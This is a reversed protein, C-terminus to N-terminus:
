RRRILSVGDGVGVMVVELTPDQCVRRNFDRIAVTDADDRAPDIVAGGWLVNDVVVVGRPALRALSLDLYDSYGGKDADIFVLDLAPESPLAALTQSAPGIRVDIREEVGARRWFPRGFEIFREDAECCILRGDAPLGRALYLASMGTFTGVEVVMRCDLAAVLFQLLRGQDAAINMAAADGFRDRTARALEDGIPDVGGSSAVVYDSLREDLGLSRHHESM